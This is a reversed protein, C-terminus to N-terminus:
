IVLALSIPSSPWGSSTPGLGRGLLRLVSEV